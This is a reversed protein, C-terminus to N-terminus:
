RASPAGFASGNEASASPRSSLGAWASATSCGGPGSSTTAPAPEPLVRTM